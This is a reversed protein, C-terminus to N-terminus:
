VFRKWTRHYRVIHSSIAPQIFFDCSIHPYRLTHSSIAHHILTDCSKRPYRLIHLSMAPHDPYRLVILFRLTIFLRLVYSCMAPQTLIDCSILVHRWSAESIQSWLANDYRQIQGKFSKSCTWYQSTSWSVSNIHSSVVQRSDTVSPSVWVWRSM